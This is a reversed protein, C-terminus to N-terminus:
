FYDFYFIGTSFLWLFKGTKVWFFNFWKSLTHYVFSFFNNNKPNKIGSNNSGSSKLSKIQNKGSVLM